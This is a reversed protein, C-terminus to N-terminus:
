GARGAGVFWSANAEVLGTSVSIGTPFAYEASSHFLGARVPWNVVRGPLPKAQCTVVVQTSAEDHPGFPHWFVDVDGPEVKGGPEKSDMAQVAAHKLQATSGREVIMDDTLVSPDYRVIVTSM